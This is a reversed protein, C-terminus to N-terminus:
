RKALPSRESIGSSYRRRALVFSATRNSNERMLSYVESRWLQVGRMAYQHGTVIDGFYYLTGALHNYAGIMPTPDDQEEAM